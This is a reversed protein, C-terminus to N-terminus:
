YDVLRIRGIRGGDEREEEGFNQAQQQRRTAQSNYDRQHRERLERQQGERYQYSGRHQYDRQYGHQYDRQYGHQYDRYVEGRQSDQQTWDRVREHDRFNKRRFTNGGSGTNGPGSGGSTYDRGRSRSRSRRNSSSPHRDRERDRHPPQRDTHDPRIIRNLNIKKGGDVELAIHGRGGETRTVTDNLHLLFIGTHRPTGTDATPRGTGSQRPTINGVADVRELGGAQHARSLLCLPNQGHNQDKTLDQGRDPSPDQGLSQGQGRAHGPDLAHGRGQGRGRPAQTKEKYAIVNKGSWQKKLLAQTKRKLREQPTLKPGDQFLPMLKILNNTKVTTNTSNQMTGTSSTSKGDSECESGSESNSDQGRRGYYRRCPPSPLKTLPDPTGSSGGTHQVPVIAGQTTTTQRTVQVQLAVQQTVQHIRLAQHSFPLSFTSFTVQFSAVEASSTVERKVWESFAVMYWAAATTLM